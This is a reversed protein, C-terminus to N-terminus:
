PGELPIRDRGGQEGDQVVIGRRDGQRSVDTRVRQAPQDLRADGFLGIEPGLVETVNELGEVVDAGLHADGFGIAIERPLQAVYGRGWGRGLSGLAEIRRNVM